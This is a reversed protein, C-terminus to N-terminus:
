RGNRGIRKRKEIIDMVRGLYSLSGFAIIVSDRDALLYGMEVAEEVSAAATVKPHYEAAERALEYADMARPNDPTKVTIISDALPATIKLIKEHEKDKLMGIIFVIRRNTFYFQLSEKLRAAADENHAGDVIFYPRESLVEFRGHWVTKEFGRALQRDSIRFGQQRLVRVTELAICANEVQFSGALPLTIRLRRDYRLSQSKVGYRIQDVPLSKDGGQWCVTHLQAHKEKCARRIVAMVEERQQLAVVQCGEKIIGAKAQAIKEITRGLFSMHDMSISTLVAVQTNQVLNTADLAGGMGAELIVIDCEKELFYLFGLATEVEFATPQALGDILMSECADRVRTMLRCLAEKTLRQRGVLIRERWERIVPSNYRGVRIGSEMLISALYATVSGKGNTGAVHIFRLQEQPNGLRKCLETISDLGPVSGLRQLAEIYAFVEKENM